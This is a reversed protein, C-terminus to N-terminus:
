GSEDIVEIYKIMGADIITPKSAGIELILHNRVVVGDSRHIYDPGIYVATKGNLTCGNYVHRFKILIGEKM